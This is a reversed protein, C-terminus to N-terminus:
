HVGVTLSYPSAASAGTPSYVKVLYTGGGTSRHALQEDQGGGPDSAGDVRTLRGSASAHYLTMAFDASRQGLTITYRARKAVTFSYWDVDGSHSLAGSMTGSTCVTTAQAPTDNPEAEACGGGAGHCQGDSGCTQGGSCSGCSNGCGDDGCQRGHCDCGDTKGAICAGAANSWLKQVTYGAVTTAQGVCIDGIEGNSDDYWALPPGLSQALGVAADTVAEVLEHSTAETTDELQGQGGCGAACAGGLDPIVGYYVNKRKHVFTGHYACFVQCSAGGGQTITVGPPFHVM